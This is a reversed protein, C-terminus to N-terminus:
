PSRIAEALAEGTGARLVVTGDLPPAAFRERRGEPWLIEVSQVPGSPGLGFHIVPEHSALYGTAPLLAAWRRRGDAMVLTAEAGLADRGGAAPEVLRLRLWHSRGPAVNRFIRAPGGVGAVVLDTGGDGELDLTALTRGVMAPGSFAPEKPSRDLFHGGGENQFLQPRQAYRAWWPDLGALVPSQGPTLRRVLGNLWALDVTGDNNFDALVAGFGTGRWSQQQLGATAVQDSFLGRPGQRWLSHFEETLHTVFLDGLGDGDVDGFATGMNAATAGMANFAAGRRAAEESFTGDRRNIWLRNPRGDDAIFIDPWGDGDFDACVLGLAAGTVRSLGAPETREEFKPAAGPTGTVNRWLRAPTGGFAQPACFDQRGQVDHCVQTPDYDVYNGVVLDLWGDRDYDVFSAAAGWRANDVGCARGLEVFKGGGLNQFVRVADYETVVVDPRGDNNVDGAYAGMGRGAVDLGSGASIDRWTGDEQRRFLRNRPGNTGGNQVFYLDMRGDGDADFVAVGCGVQDPMFYNTGAVHIFRLGQEGTADAFWPATSRSPSPSSPPASPPKCGAAVALAGFLGCAWRVKLGLRVPASARGRVAGLVAPVPTLDRSISGPLKM